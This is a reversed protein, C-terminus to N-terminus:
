PTELITELLGQYDHFFSTNLYVSRPYVPFSVHTGIGFYYILVTQFQHSHVMPYEGAGDEVLIM